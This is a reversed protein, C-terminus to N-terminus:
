YLVCLVLLHRTLATDVGTGPNLGTRLVSDKHRWWARPVLHVIAYIDSANGFTSVNLM